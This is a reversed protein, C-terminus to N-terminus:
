VHIYFFACSFFFFNQILAFNHRPYNITYKNNFILQFFPFTSFFSFSFDFKFSLICFVCYVLVQIQEFYLNNSSNKQKKKEYLGSNIFSTDNTKHIQTFCQFLFFFRRSSLFLIWYKEKKKSKEKNIKSYIATYTAMLSYFLVSREPTRFLLFFFIIIIFLM